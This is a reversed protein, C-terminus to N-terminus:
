YRIEFGSLRAYTTIAALVTYIGPWLLGYLFGFEQYLFFFLLDDLMVALGGLIVAVVVTRFLAKSRRRRVVRRVAEAIIGGAVPGILITLYFFGIGGAILGGVFSLGGAVVFALVYDTAKATNFVKGQNRVCDKCRYGTPTLVACSPCIYNECRNCRLNTDRNTHKYCVNESTTTTM